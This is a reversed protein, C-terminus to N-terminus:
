MVTRTTLGGRPWSIEHRSRCPENPYAGDISQTRSTSLDGNSWPIDFTVYQREMCNEQRLDMILPLHYLSNPGNLADKSSAKVHEYQLMGGTRAHQNRSKCMYAPLGNRRSINQIDFNSYAGCEVQNRWVVSHKQSSVQSWIWLIWQGFLPTCVSAYGM